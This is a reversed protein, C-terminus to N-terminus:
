DESYSEPHRLKLTDVAAQLFSEHLRKASSKEYARAVELEVDIGSIDPHQSKYFSVAQQYLESHLMSVSYVLDRIEHDSLQGSSLKSENQSVETLFDAMRNDIDKGINVGNHSPKSTNEVPAQPQDQVIEKIVITDRIDNPVGAGKVNDGFKPDTYHGRLLLGGVILLALFSAGVFWYSRQTRPQLAKELSEHTATDSTCEKRFRRFTSKPFGPIKAEIYDFLKGLALIDKYATPREGNVLPDSSGVTGGHTLDLTDSYAKDLDILMVGMDSKRLLVNAPKIDCHIVGSRHLYAIVNLLQCFFKRVNTASSFFDQGEKTSIFEDVSIGDVFDMVIYVENADDRLERYLPLADHKLQRGIQFEKRYSAVFTPDTRYKARLRKAAVRLGDLYMRYVICSAGEGCVNNETFGSIVRELSPQTFGSNFDSPDSVSLM